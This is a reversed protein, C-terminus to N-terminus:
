GLNLTIILYFNIFIYKRVVRYLSKLKRYVLGRFLGTVGYMLSDLKKPLTINIKNYIIIYIM